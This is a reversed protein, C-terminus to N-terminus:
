LLGLTGADDAYVGSVGPLKRILEAVKPTCTVTVVPLGGAEGYHVVEKTLHSQDLAARLSKFFNSAQATYASVVQARPTHQPFDLASLNVVYSRM